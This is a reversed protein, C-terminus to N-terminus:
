TPRRRAGRWQLTAVVIIAGIGVIWLARVVIPGVDNGTAPLSGEADVRFSASASGSQEGTVIFSHSGLTEDARITWTFTVDGDADAVQTGLSLPTSEQTGTVVEGPQFGTGHGTQQGGRAIVPVVVDAVVAGPVTTTSAPATTTPPETTEPPPETTEPPCPEVAGANNGAAPADREDAGQRLL